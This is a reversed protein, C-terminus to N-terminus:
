AESSDPASQILFWWSCSQCPVPPKSNRDGQQARAAFPWATAASGIIKIFDRRRMAKELAWSWALMPKCSRQNSCAFAASSIPSVPRNQTAAIRLRWTEQPDFADSRRAQRSRPM